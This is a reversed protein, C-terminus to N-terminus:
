RSTYSLRSFLDEAEARAKLRQDEYDADKALVVSEIVPMIKITENVVWELDPTQLDGILKEREAKTRYVPHAIHKDRYNRIRGMQESNLVGFVSKIAKEVEEITSDFDPPPIPPLTPAVEGFEGLSGGGLIGTTGM